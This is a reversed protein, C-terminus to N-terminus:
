SDVLEQSNDSRINNKIKNKRLLHQVGNQQQIQEPTISQTSKTATEVMQQIRDYDIEVDSTPSLQSISTILPHPEDIEFDVNDKKHPQQIVAINIGITLIVALPDFAFIILLILWKTMNDTDKNFVKAIFVIPGIHAEKELNTNKLEAIKLTNTRIQETYQIIDQKLHNLENGYSEMLRQRGTIFNNPLSTIDNDIQKKRDLRETKLVELEVKEQELLEIQQQNLKMPLIDQQYASSLFGFIGASTILMLILVAVILYAKMLITIKKWYRYVFSASVLKGAELSSAMVVVPWFSGTFIQALGYISFFAASGAISLTTLILIIIFLM